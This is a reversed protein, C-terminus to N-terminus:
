NDIASSVVPEFGKLPLYGHFKTRCKRKQCAAALQDRSVPDYRRRGDRVVLRVQLKPTDDM